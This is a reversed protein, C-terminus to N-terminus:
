KFCFKVEGIMKADTWYFALFYFGLKTWGKEHMFTVQLLAISGCADGPWTM